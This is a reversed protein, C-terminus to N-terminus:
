RMALMIAAVVEKVWGFSAPLLEALSLVEASTGITIAATLTRVGIGFGKLAEDGGVKGVSKVARYAPELLGSLLNEASSVAEASLPGSIKHAPDAMLPLTADALTNAAEVVDDGMVQTFQGTMRLLTVAQETAERSPEPEADSQYARWAPLQRIFMGHSIAVAKLLAAGGGLLVDDAREAMEQLSIGFIGLDIVRVVDFGDGLADKYASLIGELGRGQPNLALLRELTVAHARWAAELRERQDADRVEPAIVRKRHLLGDDGFEVEIVAPRQRPVDVPEQSEGSVVDPFGGRYKRELEALIANGHAPGKEWDEDTPVLVRDLELQEILRRGRKGALRDEYWDIWVDWDQNLALLRTSLDDWAVRLSEPFAESWLARGCVEAPAESDDLLSCDVSIEKWLNIAVARADYAAAAAADAYAAADAARADAYAAADAAAYAAADAARTAA